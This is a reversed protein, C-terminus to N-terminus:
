LASNQGDNSETTWSIIPFGDDVVCQEWFRIKRPALNRHNGEAFCRAPLRIGDSTSFGCMKGRAVVSSYRAELVSSDFVVIRSDSRKM